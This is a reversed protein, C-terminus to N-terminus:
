RCYQTAVHALIQESRRAREKIKSFMLMVDVVNTLSHVTNKARLTPLDSGFVAFYM